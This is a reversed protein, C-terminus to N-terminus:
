FRSREPRIQSPGLTWRWEPIRVGRGRHAGEVRGVQLEVGYGTYVTVNYTCELFRNRPLPPYDTSDIYGEPEYFNVSCLGPLVSWMLWGQIGTPIMSSGVTSGRSIIGYHLDKLYLLLGLVAKSPAQEATIVTTIVITSTTTEQGDETSPRRKTEDEAEAAVQRILTRGEEEPSFFGTAELGAAFAQPTVPQALFPSIQLPSHSTVGRSGKSSSWSTLEPKEERATSVVDGELTRLNEESFSRINPSSPKAAATATKPRQHKRATNGQRLPTGSKKKAPPMQRTNTSPSSTPVSLSERPSLTTKDLLDVADQTAQAPSAPTPYASEM